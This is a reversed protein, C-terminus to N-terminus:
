AALEVKRDFQTTEAREARRLKAVAAPLALALLSGVMVVAAGAFVAPILGNVYNQPSAYSGNASFIAALVAVGFVGGLERITNNAGSAKGEEDRPV